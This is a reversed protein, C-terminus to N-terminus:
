YAVCITTFIGAAVFFPLTVNTAADPTCDTDVM